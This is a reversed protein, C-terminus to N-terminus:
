VAEGLNGIYVIVNQVLFLVMPLLSEFGFVDIGQLFIFDLVLLFLKKFPQM